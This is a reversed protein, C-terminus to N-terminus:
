FEFKKEAFIRNILHELRTKVPMLIAIVLALSIFHMIQSHGGIREVLYTTFLHESVSFVFLLVAALASYIAGKKVIITIDLLQEKIIAVGILAAFLDNMVMGLPLVWPLDIGLIIVVKVIAMTIALFGAIIYAYHRRTLPHHTRRRSQFLIWISGGMIAFWFVFISQVPLPSPAMRFINGWSYEYVGSLRGYDGTIFLLILLATVTWVVYLSWRRQWGSFAVSFHHVLAPIFTGPLTAIYGYLVLEELHENRIMSLLIGLDWILCTLILGAFM